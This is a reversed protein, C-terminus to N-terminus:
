DTLGLLAFGAPTLLDYFNNKRKKRCEPSFYMLDFRAGMYGAARMATTCAAKGAYFELWELEQALVTLSMQAITGLAVGRLLLNRTQNAVNHFIPNAHVHTYIGAQTLTYLGRTYYVLVVILLFEQSPVTIM